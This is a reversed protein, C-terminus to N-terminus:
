SIAKLMEMATPWLPSNKRVSSLHRQLAERDKTSLSAADFLRYVKQRRGVPQTKISTLFRTTDERAQKTFTAGLEGSLAGDAWDTSAFLTKLLSNDKKTALLGSVLSAADDAYFNQYKPKKTLSRSVIEVNTNYDVGLLCSVFAVKVRLADDVRRANRIRKLARSLEGRSIARLRELTALNGEGTACEEILKILQSDSPTTSHDHDSFRTRANVAVLTVLLTLSVLFYERASLM